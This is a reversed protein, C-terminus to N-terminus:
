MLEGMCLKQCLAQCTTSVWGIDCNNAKDHAGIIHLAHHSPHSQSPCNRSPIVSPLHCLDVLCDTIFTWFPDSVTSPPSPVLSPKRSSTAKSFCCKVQYLYLLATWTLFGVSSLCPTHPTHEWTGALSLHLHDCAGTCQTGVTHWAWPHTKCSGNGWPTIRSYDQYWLPLLQPKSFHDVDIQSCSICSRVSVCNWAQPVSAPSKVM